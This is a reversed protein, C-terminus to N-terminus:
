RDGEIAPIRFVNAPESTEPRRAHLLSVQERLDAFAKLYTARRSEPIKVGSRAMLVDFEAELSAPSIDPM